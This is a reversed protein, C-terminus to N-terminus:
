LLPLQIWVEDGDQLLMPDGFRDQSWQNIAGQVDDWQHNHMRAMAELENVPWKSQTMAANLFGQYQEPLGDTLSAPEEPTEVPVPEVTAAVPPETAQAAVPPQAHTPQPVSDQAPATPEPTPPVPTPPPNVLEFKFTAPGAEPDGVIETPSGISSPDSDSASEEVRNAEEEAALAEAEAAAKERAQRRVAARQKQQKLYRDIAVRQWISLATLGILVTIVTSITPTMFLALVLALIVLVVMGCLIILAPPFADDSEASGAQEAVLFRKQCSTCQTFKRPSAGPSEFQAQCHPCEIKM